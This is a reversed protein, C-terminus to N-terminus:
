VIIISSMGIRKRQSVKNTADDAEEVYTCYAKDGGGQRRSIMKSKSITNTSYHITQLCILEEPKIINSFYLLLGRCCYLIFIDEPLPNVPRIKYYQM